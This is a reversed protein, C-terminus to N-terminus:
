VMLASALEDDDVYDDGVAAAFGDVSEFGGVERQVFAAGRLDDLVEFLM